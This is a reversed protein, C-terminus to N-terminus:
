ADAGRRFDNKMLRWDLWRGMDLSELLNLWTKSRNSGNKSLSNAGDSKYRYVLNKRWAIVVDVLVAEPPEGKAFGGRSLRAM